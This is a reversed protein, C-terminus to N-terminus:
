IGLYNFLVSFVADAIIILFIAQVVSRTTCKGVSEASYGVKFGQLCGVLAIILAFIPAKVIGVWFNQIDVSEQFEHMFAHFNINLSVRAMLMSGFMGTVDAWFILFPFIFLMGLIKPLVLREIPSIGLTALADIEQNIKMAGIEATFSSSSRGAIIVATMLPGFERLVAIGTLYAVYINAGYNELQVGLQYALVIGILFSLLGLIPLAGCGMNEIVVLINKLPFRRLPKLAHFFGYAISGILTLFANVEVMRAWLGQGLVSLQNICQAVLTLKSKALAKQTEQRHETFTSVIQQAKVLKMLAEHESSIGLLKTRSMDGQLLELIFLAGATDLKQVASMDVCEVQEQRLFWAHTLTDLSLVGKFNAQAQQYTIEVVADSM